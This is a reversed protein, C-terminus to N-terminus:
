EVWKLLQFIVFVCDLKFLINITYRGLNIIMPQYFRLNLMGYICASCDLFISM